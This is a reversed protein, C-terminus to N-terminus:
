RTIYQLKLKCHVAVAASETDSGAVNSTICTYVGTLLPRANLTRPTSYHQNCPNYTSQTINFDMNNMVHEKHEEVQVFWKIVQLPLGNAICALDLTFGAM